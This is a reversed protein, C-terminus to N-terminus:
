IFIVRFIKVEHKSMGLLRIRWNKVNVFVVAVKGFSLAKMLFDHCNDRVNPEYKFSINLFYRFRCRIYVRSRGGINVDM